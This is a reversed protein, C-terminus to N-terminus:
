EQAPDSQDADPHEGTTEGADDGEDTDDADVLRVRLKDLTTHVLEVGHATYQEIGTDKMRKLAKGKELEETQKADNITARADAIRSCIGDLSRDKPLDEM